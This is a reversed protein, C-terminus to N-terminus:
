GQSLDHDNAQPDTPHTSPRTDGIAELPQVASWTIGDASTWVAAVESDSDPGGERSGVAVLSSGAATVYDGSDSLHDRNVPRDLRRWSILNTYFAWGIVVSLAILM